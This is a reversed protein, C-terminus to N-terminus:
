SIPEFFLHIVHQEFGTANADAGTTANVWRVEVPGRFGGNVVFVGDCAHKGTPVMALVSCWGFSPDSSDSCIGAARMLLEVATDAATTTFPTVRVGVKWDGATERCQNLTYSTVGGAARDRSHIAYTFPKRQDTTMNSLPLV